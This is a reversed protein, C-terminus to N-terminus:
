TSLYELWGQRDKHRKEKGTKTFNIRAQKGVKTTGIKAKRQVM